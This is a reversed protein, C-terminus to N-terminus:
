EVKLMKEFAEVDETGVKITTETFGHEALWPGLKKNIVAVAQITVTSSGERKAAEIAGRQVRRMTLAASKPGGENYAGLVAVITNKNQTTIMAAVQTKNTLEGITFDEIQGTIKSMGLAAMPGSIEVPGVADDPQAAAPITPDAVGADQTGSANREVLGAPKGSVNADEIEQTNTASM